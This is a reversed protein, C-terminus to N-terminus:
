PATTDDAGQPEDHPDHRKHQHDGTRVDRVQQQQPPGAPAAFGGHPDRQTRTSGAQGAEVEGLTQHQGGQAGGGSDHEGRPEAAQELARLELLRRDPVDGDVPADRQERDAGREGGGREDRDGRREARSAAVHRCCEFVRRCALHRARRQAASKHHQLEGCRKRQHDTGQQETAREGPESPNPEAELGRANGGECYLRAVHAILAGPRPGVVSRQELADSPQVSHLPSCERLLHREDAAQLDQLDADRSGADDM